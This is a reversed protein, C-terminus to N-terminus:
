EQSRVEAYVAEFKPVAQAWDYASATARAQASLRAREDPALALARLITQAASAPQSYDALFGDRGEAIVDRFAEITNVVPVLGAAMAELLALGFGEYTAASLFLEAASLEARLQADAVEGAWRVSDALSLAAARAQLAPRLPGDGVVVLSLSPQAARAAAFADLLAFLNKNSALRGVTILRGPVPRRPAAAFAPYDIANDIRVARRAHAAFRREDGASNPIVVDAVRLSRRTLLAFYLRKLAAHDATHFFGGHTSVVLPRRHAWRTLALADLFFDTNHVHVLDFDAVLPLVGPAFFFLPGGVFPLRHVPIGHVTETDPLRKGRWCRNLTAVEVTHGRAALRTALDSVFREVGGLCPHYQRCIHLIKM